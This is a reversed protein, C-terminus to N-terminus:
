LIEESKLGRLPFNKLICASKKYSKKVKLGTKRWFYIILKEESIRLLEYCILARLASFKQIYSQNTM